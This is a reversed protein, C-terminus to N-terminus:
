SYPEFIRYDEVLAIEDLYFNESLMSDDAYDWYLYVGAIEHASLPIGTTERMAFDEVPFALWGRFNKM